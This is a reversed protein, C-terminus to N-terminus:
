HYFNNPNQMNYGNNNFNFNNMGNNQGQNM